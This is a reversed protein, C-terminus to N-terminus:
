KSFTYYANHFMGKPYKLYSLSIFSSIISIFIKPILKRMFINIRKKEAEIINEFMKKEKKEKKFYFLILDDDM